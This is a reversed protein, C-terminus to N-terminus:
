KLIFDIRRNEARGADTDNTAVPKSAGYGVSVFRAAALGERKLYTLVADARKQSLERNAADDGVSDTHGAIEFIADPCRRLIAAMQDLARAAPPRIREGSVGFQIKDLTQVAALAGACAQGDIKGKPPLARLAAKAAKIKEAREAASPAPPLSASANQASSGSQAGDTKAGETKAPEGSAAEVAKGATEAAKRAAEALKEQAAKAAEQARDAAAAKDRLQAADDGLTETAAIVHAGALAAIKEAAAEANAMDKPLHVDHGIVEIKSPDIGLAAIAEGVQKKVDAEIAPTAFHAAGVGIIAAPILGLAWGRHERWKGGRAAAVVLAGLIFPGFAALAAELYVGYRGRLINLAVVLAGVIFALGTWALWPSIKHNKDTQRFLYSAAAGILFAALSWPWFHEVILRM